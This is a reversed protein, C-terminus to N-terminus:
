GELSQCKSRENETFNNSTIYYYQVKWNEDYATRIRAIARQAASNMENSYFKGRQIQKMKYHFQQVYDWHHATEYKCQLVIIRQETDLAFIADIGYDYSGSIERADIADDEPLEFINQLCWQCFADGKVTAALPENEESTVWEVIGDHYTNIDEINLM